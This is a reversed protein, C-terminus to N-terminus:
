PFHLWLEKREYRDPDGPEEDNENQLDVTTLSPYFPVLGEQAFSHVMNYIRWYVERVKKAPHFLGQLLYLLIQGPGLAATLGHIAFTVARIVHPSTEFINPWVHNLLHVLADEVGLGHVGLALHGVATCATQRHVLDRDILADELIPTLAYIYDKSMDRIYEFLFSLSKLIGNQVHLEPIRYENMLSPLVTYPGCTEAVIAIAVTTCVRQTREQVKLNNLLTTLVNSPGIAKAIHGFTSVASKRIAKRPAKLLELLEFCIRMWEKPSIFHAGKNAIKGVLLICNEQVKEHRNKLIPTLRPLLENIPPKMDDIGIVDVISKMARLISGLVDPFEEGLYEFLVTGMHSILTDENCAKMVPAIGSILDAAFERVQATKNNLRLKVMIIIRQMYPKARTGLKTVVICLARLAGISDKSNEQAQFAFLLGDILRAELPGDVDSLGLSETIKEVTEVVMKRYPDSGDKLDETLLSIIDRGGIKEAIALTTEVVSRFHRRDLAMRRIWFCRFFEPVIETRVYTAQVGSCSVCQKVVKLVVSKMEEEPNKFERVLIVNVEKAYYNAYEEDMLPIIFGIAKLFAALTKGKHHRIGQWLPKLVSDFSEIGYPASAEALAALAFASILRVKGQEDVLGAEVINVLERLHPLVAVGMLIAVQQVIKAGTHRAEWAKRSKCVARLFPIMSPIGLASSVVAFARATTNRVFEDKHDIDPRMTSIMTALGAAKALNSIIERGEVRAYYDDDILMPEIVVLIKHVHPRILDSLKYLIKDIVKVYLHREQHELTPSMLLPLIQNFLPGPGFERARDSIQRMASKRISPNGNKIKLLLRMIKREKREEESVGEDKANEDLIKAFNRYDEPKMEIGRLAEPMQAPIGLADKSMGGEVPMTYLAPGQPASSPTTAVTRFIMRPARVPNYGKPPELIEFGDGPLIRDLEEDTWPRNRMMIDAQWKSFGMSNARLRGIGVMSVDGAGDTGPLSSAGVKAAHDLEMPTKDWRSRRGTSIVKKETTGSEGKSLIINSVGQGTVVSGVDPPSIDVVAVAGVPINNDLTPAADVKAMAAAEEASVDWRRRRKRPRQEKATVVSIPVKGQEQKEAEKMGSGNAQVIDRDGQLRLDRELIRQKMRDAEIEKRHAEIEAAGRKRRAALYNNETDRLTKPMYPKFPDDKHLSGAAEEAEEILHRPAAISQSSPNNVNARAEQVAKSADSAPLSPDISTIYAQKTSPIDRDYLHNDFGSVNPGFAVRSSVDEETPPSAKPMQFSPLETHLHSVILLEQLYNPTSGIHASKRKVAFFYARAAFNRNTCQYVINQVSLAYLNPDSPLVGYKSM